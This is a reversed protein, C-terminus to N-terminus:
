CRILTAKFLMPPTVIASSGRHYLAANRHILTTHCLFAKRRCHIDKHLIPVAKRQVQIATIHLRLTPSAFCPQAFSKSRMSALRIRHGPSSIGRFHMAVSCRSDSYGPFLMPGGRFLNATSRFQWSTCPQPHAFCPPTLIHVATSSRLMAPNHYPNANILWPLASFRFALSSSHQPSTAFRSPAATHLCHQSDRLHLLPNCLRSMTFRLMAPSCSPGAFALRPNALSGTLLAHCPCQNANFPQPVANIRGSRNLLIRRAQCRSLLARHDSPPSCQPLAFTFAPAALVGDRAHLFAPSTFPGDEARWYPSPLRRLGACRVPHHVAGLILRLFSHVFPDRPLLPKVPCSISRHLM